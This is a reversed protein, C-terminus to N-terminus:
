GQHGELAAHRIASPTIGFARKFTRCFHSTDCFGWRFAIDTVSGGGPQQLDEMCRALRESRVLAAVSEDIDEFLAHLARVSISYAWAISAPGLGPDQLNQRIHHRIDERMAARVADRSAPLVPEIAARLLEVAARAAAAQGAADLDPLELALSNIYRILLRGAANGVLPPPVTPEALRPCVSEVLEGPFLLTRKHVPELVEVDVPRRSDWLVVDGTSITADRHRDRAREAGRQIFQLGMVPACGGDAGHDVLTQDRRGLCPTAACDVLALEGFRRRKVVGRFEDATSDTARIDFAVLAAALVDSWDQLRRSLAGTSVSWREPESPTATTLAVAATAM